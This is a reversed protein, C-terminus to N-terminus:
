GPDHLSPLPLLTLPGTGAKRILEANSRQIGAIERERRALKLRRDSDGRLAAEELISAVQEAQDAMQEAVQASRARLDSITQAWHSSDIVMAKPMREGNNVAAGDLEWVPLQGFLLGLRSPTQICYHWRSV